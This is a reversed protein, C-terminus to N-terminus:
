KILLLTAFDNLLKKTRKIAWSVSIGIGLL